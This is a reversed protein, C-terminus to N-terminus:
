ISVRPLYNDSVYLVNPQDLIVNCMNTTDIEILEKNGIIPIIKDIKMDLQNHKAYFSNDNQLQNRTYDVNYFMGPYCDYDGTITLVYPRSELSKFPNYEINSTIGLSWLLRQIWTLREESWHCISIEDRSILKNYGFDFIGRIFKWRDNISAFMYENPICPSTIKKTLVWADVKNYLNRDNNFFQNWTLYSVSMLYTFLVMNDKPISSAQINCTYFDSLFNKWLDLPLNIENMSYDGYTLFIGATYPDPDLKPKDIYKSNDFGWLKIKPFEKIELASYMDVINNGTFLLEDISYIAERGDSYHVKIIRNNSKKISLVKHPKGTRYEYLTDGYVLNRIDVLGRQTYVINPIIKNKLM